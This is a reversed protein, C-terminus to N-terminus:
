HFHHHHQFGFGVGVFIPPGYWYPDPYPYPGYNRATQLMYDVVSQSVGQDRLHQVDAQIDRDLNRQEDNM